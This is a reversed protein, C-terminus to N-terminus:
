TFSPFALSFEYLHPPTYTSSLFTSPLSIKHTHLLHWLIKSLRWIFILYCIFWPLHTFLRVLLLSSIHPATPSFDYSHPFIPSFDYSYSFTPFNHFTPFFGYPNIHLYLVHLCSLDYLHIIYFAIFLFTFSSLFSGEEWWLPIECASRLVFM